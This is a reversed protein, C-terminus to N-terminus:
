KKMGSDNLGNDFIQEEFLYESYKTKIEEAKQNILNIKEKNSLEVKDNQNKKFNPVYLDIYEEDIISSMKYKNILELQLKPLLHSYGLQNLYPEVCEEVLGPINYAAYRYNNSGDKCTIRNVLAQVLNEELNYNYIKENYDLYKQLAERFMLKENETFDYGLAENISINKNHADYEAKSRLFFKKIKRSNEFDFQRQARKTIIDSLVNCLNTLMKVSENLMDLLDVLISEGILSNSPIQYQEDWTTFMFMGFQNFFHILEVLKNNVIVTPDPIEENSLGLKQVNKRISVLSGINLERNDALCKFAMEKCFEDMYKMNDNKNGIDM